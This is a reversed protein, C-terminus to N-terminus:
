SRARRESLAPDSPRAVVDSTPRPNPRPLEILPMLLYGALWYPSMALGAWGVRGRWTLWVALPVGIALWAATGIHASPGYNGLPAAHALVNEIWDATLGSGLVIAAHIVFVGAVPWRIEPMKWLLWAALPIQLPRPMLFLLALSVIAAPRSGRLALVGSVVVFIMTNGGALQDWFGLSVVMIAIFRWDRVLLVSGVQLAVWPWYGIVPVLSMIWAAVPSWVFPAVTDTDYIPGDRLATWLEWDPHPVGPFRGFYLVLGLNVGAYLAFALARWSIIRRAANGVAPSAARRMTAM